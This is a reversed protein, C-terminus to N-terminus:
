PAGTTTTVPHPQPVGAALAAREQARRIYEDYETLALAKLKDFAEPTPEPHDQAIRVFAAVWEIGYRVILPILDLWTFKM